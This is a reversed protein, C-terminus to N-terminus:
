MFASNSINNWQGYKHLYYCPQSCYLLLSKNPLYTIQKEARVKLVVSLSKRLLWKEGLHWDLWIQVFLVLNDCSNKAETASLTQFFYLIYYWHRRRTWNPRQLNVVSYITFLHGSFLDMHYGYLVSRESILLVYCTRTLCDSRGESFNYEIM